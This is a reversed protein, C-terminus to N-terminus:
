SDLLAIEDIFALIQQLTPNDMTWSRGDAEVIAPMNVDLSLVLWAPEDESHIARHESSIVIQPVFVELKEELIELDTTEVQVNPRSIQLCTAM